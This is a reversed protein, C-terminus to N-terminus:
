KKRLTDTLDGSNLQTYRFSSSLSAHGMAESIVSNNMGKISLAHGFHHRLSHPNIYEDVLLGAEKSTRSFIEGISQNTFRRGYVKNTKYGFFLAGSDEIPKESIMGERLEIWKPIVQVAEQDLIDYPITRFPRVGKSKETKITVLKEEVNIDSVNLSILEGVRMGTNWMLAIMAKNRITYNRKTSKDCVSLLLRYNEETCVKPKVYEKDTLPILLPDVVDLGKRTWFKYFQILAEEKKIITGTAYGMTKFLNIWEVIHEDTVAEVECNRMFIAFNRLDRDQGNVQHARVRLGRNANFIRIAENFNM